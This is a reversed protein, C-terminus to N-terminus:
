PLDALRETLLAYFGDADIKTMVRANRPRGSIGRWDIVTMGLTLPSQTEVAVNTEAGEFLEPALLYAIVCPDHLAYAPPQGRGTKRARPPSMLLAAALGCRNGLARVREMREPTSMVQHTLDLPILTISAGSGFVIAAALPDAHINFEACPTTNGLAYSAGGMVVLEGIREAIDPAKILAAAVNTLPGLACVTISRPPSTRLTEVLFDVGHGPQLALQPPPLELGGLGSEGHAHEATVAGGGIPRPCGAYVPVETRGALELVARANRETAVLPANGAVAALGLLDLEPAALALLIAVADDTGPDTDIIIPRPM